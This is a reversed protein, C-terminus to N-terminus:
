CVITASRSNNGESSEAVQGDPDVTATITGAACTSAFTRTASAGAALGGFTFSPGGAISVVFAGAAATGVNSVTVTGATLDSVILDPLAAAEITWAYSASGVNGAGDTAEVSFVHGGPALGAYGHPSQCPAFGGGDLECRFAAPESASFAFSAGTEATSQPPAGGIQVFPAPTASPPQSETAPSPPEPITAAALITWRYSAPPGVNGATDVARVSFTHPGPDLGTYRAPSSCPASAGGDLRCRLVAEESARV